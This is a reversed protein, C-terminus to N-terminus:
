RHELRRCGGRAVGDGFCPARSVRRDRASRQQAWRREDERGESRRAHLQREAREGAGQLSLRVARRGAGLGARLLRRARELRQQEREDVAGDQDRAPEFRRAPEAERDRTGADRQQEARESRPERWM